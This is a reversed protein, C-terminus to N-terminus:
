MVSKMENITYNIEIIERKLIIEVYKNFKEKHKHNVKRIENFHGDLKSLKKLIM